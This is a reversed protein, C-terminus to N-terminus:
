QSEFAKRRRQEEERVKRLEAKWKAICDTHFPRESSWIWDQQEGIKRHCWFCKDMEMSGGEM